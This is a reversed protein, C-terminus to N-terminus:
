EDALKQSDREAALRRASRGPRPHPTTRESVWAGGYDGYVGVTSLYGIWRLAGAALIDARHHALVADGAEGPPISILLHTTGALAEAVGEGLAAGDFPLIRWGEAALREAKDRSRVTGGIRAAHAAVERATANASYGMGFAFL